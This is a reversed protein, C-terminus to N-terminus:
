IADPNYGFEEFDQKYLSSIMKRCHRSLYETVRTKADTRHPATTQFAPNVSDPALRQWIHRMDKQLTEVKGIFDFREKPLLLLSIQPAWHANKYLGGANLYDCFDAFTTKGDQNKRIGTASKKERVIKDLYASLIRTYPNRVVTFKFCREFSPMDNRTLSSPTRFTTKAIRSAVIAKDRLVALNCIVTSNAAKPIRNYFFGM